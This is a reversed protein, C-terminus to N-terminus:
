RVKQRRGRTAATRAKETHQVPVNMGRLQAELLALKRRRLAVLENELATIRKDLIPATMTQPRISHSLSLFARILASGGAQKLNMVKKIKTVGGNLRHLRLTM